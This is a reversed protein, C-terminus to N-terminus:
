KEKKNAPVGVWIEGAGVNRTVVAGAGIMANDAINVGPLVNAGAGVLVRKGVQVQGGLTANPAIHSFDGVICDHDIVAGHNVIVSRGIEVCPGVISGAALFTGGGIQSFRSLLAAPHIVTHPTAGLSMTKEWFMERVNARGIALHVFAGLMDIDLAPVKVVHGLVVQGEMRSDDDRIVIRYKAEGAIIADLVVKAHGGAGIIFVSDTLM